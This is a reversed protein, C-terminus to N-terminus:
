SGILSHLKRIAQNWFLQEDELDEDESIDTITLFTDGTLEDKTISFTLPAYEEIDTWQYEVSHNLPNKNVMKLTEISDPLWILHITGDPLVKVKDCLWGALHSPTALYEYVLQISAHLLIEQTFITSAMLLPTTNLPM